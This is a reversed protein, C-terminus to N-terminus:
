QPKGRQQRADEIIAKLIDGYDSYDDIFQVLDDKDEGGICLMFNDKSDSFIVEFGGADEFAKDLKAKDKRIKEITNSTKIILDDNKKRTYAELKSSLTKINNEMLQIETFDNYIKVNSGEVEKRQKRSPEKYTINFTHTVTTGDTIELKVNSSLQIKAM